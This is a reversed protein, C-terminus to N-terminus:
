NKKRAAVGSTGAFISANLIPVRSTDVENEDYKGQMSTNWEHQYEIFTLLKKQMIKIEKLENLNEANIRQGEIQSAEELMKASIALGVKVKEESKPVEVGADICQQTIVAPFWLGKSPKVYDIMNNYIIWSADVRRKEIMTDLLIARDLTVLSTHKTHILICCILKFLSTWKPQFARSKFNLNQNNNRTARIVEKDSM